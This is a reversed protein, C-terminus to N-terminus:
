SQNNSEPIETSGGYQRSQDSESLSAELLGGNISFDLCGCCFCPYKAPHSLLVSYKKYIAILM